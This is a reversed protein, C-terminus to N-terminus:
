FGKKRLKPASILGLFIKSLEASVGPMSELIRQQILIWEPEIQLLSLRKVDANKNGRYSVVIEVNLKKQAARERIQYFHKRVAERMLRKIRNRHVALPTKKKSVTFGIVADPKMGPHASVYGTM